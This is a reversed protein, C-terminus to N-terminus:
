SVEMIVDLHGRENYEFVMEPFTKGDELEVLPAFLLAAGGGLAQWVGTNNRYEANGNNTRFSVKTSEKGISFESNIVGSINHFHKGAM